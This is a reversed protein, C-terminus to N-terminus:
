GSCKLRKWLTKTILLVLGGKLTHTDDTQSGFVDSLINKAKIENVKLKWKM